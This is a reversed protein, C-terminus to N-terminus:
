TPARRGAVIRDRGALDPFTRVDVLAREFLAGVEAGQGDGIEVLLWGGPALWAPAAEALRRHVATGGVLALRPDARVDAPLGGYEDPDVYPPNSVIVDVHGRLEAPVAALLDGARVAIPFGLRDANRRALRVAAESLDTAVVRADPRAAAVALAVAGAGTGVDVVTPRERDAISDLAALALGETEPRPVFVGPAVELDLGLFGQRGTLHQVPAGALRRELFAAFAAAEGPDLPTRRVYLGARDVGLLVTLLSEAEARPSPTGGAALVRAAEGVAAAPALGAFSPGRPGAEAAAVNPDPPRRM